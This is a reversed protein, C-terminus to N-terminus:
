PFGCILNPWYKGGTNNTVNKCNTKGGIFNIKFCFDTREKDIPGSFSIRCGICINKEYIVILIYYLNTNIDKNNLIILNLPKDGDVLKKRPCTLIYENTNVKIM